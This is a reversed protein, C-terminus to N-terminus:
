EMANLLQTGSLSNSYLYNVKVSDKHQALAKRVINYLQKGKTYYTTSNYVSKASDSTVGAGLRPMDSGVSEGLRPMCATLGDSTQAALGTIPVTFVTVATIISMILAALRRM